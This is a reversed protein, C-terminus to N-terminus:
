QNKSTKFVKPVFWDSPVQNNSEANKQPKEQINEVQSKVEQAQPINSQEPQPKTDTNENHVDQQLNEQRVPVDKEKKQQTNQQGQQQNYQQPRTNSDNSHKAKKNSTDKSKKRQAGNKLAFGAAEFAFSSTQPITFNRTAYILGDMLNQAVDEDVKLGQEQIIKSAIESFSSHSSSAYAVDAFDLENQALAVIKSSKVDPVIENLEQSSNVGVTIVLDPASGKKNFKIRDESFSMSKNKPAFLNINLVEGEINYSVKEIEGENYPLAITVANINTDFGKKVKNIGVLNAIEVLPDSFAAIQAKKNSAQLSLFLALAAGMSDPTQKKSVIIGINQAERIIKALSARKQLSFETNM